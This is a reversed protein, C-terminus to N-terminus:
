DAAGQTAPQLAAAVREQYADHCALCGEFMEHYAVAFRSGDAATLLWAKGSTNM